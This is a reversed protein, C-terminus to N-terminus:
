IDSDSDDETDSGCYKVVYDPENIEDAFVWRGKKECWTDKQGRNMIDIMIDKEDESWDQKGNKWEVDKLWSERRDLDFINGYKDIDYMIGNPIYKLNNRMRTREETSIVRDENQMTMSM